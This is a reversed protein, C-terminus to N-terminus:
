RIEKIMPAASPFYEYKKGMLRVDYALNPCIHQPKFKDNWIYERMFDTHFVCAQHKLHSAPNQPLAVGVFDEHLNLFNICLEYNADNLHIIDSDQIAVFKHNYDDLMKLIQWIMNRSNIECQVKKTNGIRKLVGDTVCPMINLDITQMALNSYVERPIARGTPLPIFCLM